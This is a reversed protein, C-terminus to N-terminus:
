GDSIAITNFEMPTGGAERVGAAVKEALLRLNWNCPMTGIWTNAIGVIPKEMDERTFGLGYLYSRAPARDRGEFITRSNHKPDFPMTGGSTHSHTVAYRVAM